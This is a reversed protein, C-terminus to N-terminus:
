WAIIYQHDYCQHMCMCFRCMLMGLKPSSAQACVCMGTFSCRYACARAILRLCKLRCTGPLPDLHMCTCFSVNTVWTLSPLCVHWSCSVDWCVYVYALFVSASVCAPFSEEAGVACMNSFCRLVCVHESLFVKARVCELFFLITLINCM